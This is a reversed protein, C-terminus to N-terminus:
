LYPDEFVILISRCVSFLQNTPSTAAFSSSKVDIQSLRSDPMDEPMRM